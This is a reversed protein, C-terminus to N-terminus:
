DDTTHELLANFVADLTPKLTQYATPNTASGTMGQALADTLQIIADVVNKLVKSRIEPTNFVIEKAQLKVMEGHIETQNGTVSLGSNEANLLQVKTKAVQLVAEQNEIVVTDIADDSDADAPDKTFAFPLFMGDNIDFVRETAATSFKMDSTKVKSIDLKCVILLGTDGVRLPYNIKYNKGRPLLVPINHYVVPPVAAAQPMVLSKISCRNKDIEVVECPLVTNVKNIIMNNILAEIIDWTTQQTYDPAQLM